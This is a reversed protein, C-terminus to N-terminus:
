GAGARGILLVLGTALLNLAALPLFVKWGLRMLEQIRFRPLSWRVWIFFFLVIAVKFTFAGVKALDMWQPGSGPVTVFPLHWGGWFLTVVLAAGAITYVYEAAVLLAFKASGYGARYGGALEPAIPLDFPRRHAHVLLAVLFVVFGVPQTWVNWRPVPGIMQTQAVVIDSLRASGTVMLVGALSLGLSLGFAIRQAAARLGGLLAYKDNTSWGAMLAGGIALASMALVFLAGIDPDAVQLRITRGLVEITDGFPIAAFVLVPPVLAVVPAALYIPRDVGAPIVEEKLLLKLGDALPQLLGGPGVRNPGLRRQMLGGIRREALALCPVGVGLIAILVVATKGIVVLLDEPANM